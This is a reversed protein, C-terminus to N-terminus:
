LQLPIPSPHLSLLDQIKTWQSMVWQWRRRDRHSLPSMDWGLLKTPPVGIPTDGGIISLYTVPPHTLRYLVHVNGTHVTWLSATVYDFYLGIPRQGILRYVEISCIGILCICTPRSGQIYETLVHGPARQVTVLRSWFAPSLPLLCISRQRM